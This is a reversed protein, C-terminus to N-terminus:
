MGMTVIGCTLMQRMRVRMGWLMRLGNDVTHIPGDAMHFGHAIHDGVSAVAAFDQNLDGSHTRGDVIDTFEDEFFVDGMADNVRYLGAVFFTEIIELVGDIFEDFLMEM